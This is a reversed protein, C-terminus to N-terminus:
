HTAASTPVGNGCAVNGGYSQTYGNSVNANYNDGQSSGGLGVYNCGCGCNYGGRLANMQRQELEEANLQNLKLRSLTKM